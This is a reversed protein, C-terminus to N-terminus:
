GLDGLKDFQDTSKLMGEDLGVSVLIKVAKKWAERNDKYLRGLFGFDLRSDDKFEDKVIDVPAPEGEGVHFGGLHGEKFKRKMELYMDYLESWFETKRGSHRRDQAELDNVDKLDQSSVHNWEIDNGVENMGPLILNMYHVLEHSVVDHVQRSMAREIIKWVSQDSELFLEAWGDRGMPQHWTYITLKAKEDNGLHSGAQSSGQVTDGSVTVEIPVPQILENDQYKDPLDSRSVNITFGAEYEHERADLEEASWAYTGSYETMLETRVDDFESKGEYVKYATYGLLAEAEDRIKKEPGKPPRVLGEQLLQGVQKQGELFEKLM